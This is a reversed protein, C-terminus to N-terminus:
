LMDGIDPNVLSPNDQSIMPEDQEAQVDALEVESVTDAILNPIETHSEAFLLNDGLMTHWQKESDSRKGRATETVHIHYVHYQKQAEALLGAATYDGHQGGFIDQVKNAPLSLLNPEDGITFLYGKKGRKQFHDTDTHQAFEWALLYSEGGNGGGGRELYTNTLWHDLKQDDQEFQGVQLPVSDCEHDGIAIFCVQSDDLGAHLLKDMMNPLGEGILKAPVYSMSATVDLGIIIPLSQPHDESDRCERVVDKPNMDDRLSRNKFTEHVPASKFQQTRGSSERMTSSYVGGGM